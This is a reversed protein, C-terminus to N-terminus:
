TWEMYRYDWDAHNMDGFGGGRNVQIGPSTRMVKILDFFGGKSEIQQATINSVAIPTERDKSLNLVGGMVEVEELSVKLVQIKLKKIILIEKHL